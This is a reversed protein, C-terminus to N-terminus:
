IIARDMCTSSLPRTHGNEDPFFFVSGDVILNWMFVVFWTALTFVSLSLFYKGHKARRLTGASMKVDLSDKIASAKHGTTKLSMGASSNYAPKAPDELSRLLILVFVHLLQHAWFYQDWPNEAYLTARWTQNAENPQFCVCTVAQADFCNLYSSPSPKFMSQVISSRVYLCRNPTPHCKMFNIWLHCRDLRM